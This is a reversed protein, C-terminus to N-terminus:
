SAISDFNVEVADPVVVTLPTGEAKKTITFEDAKAITVKYAGPLLEIEFYGDVRTTAAKPGTGILNHSSILLRDLHGAPTFTVVAGQIASGTISKIEGYVNVLTTEFDVVGGFDYVITLNDIDPTLLHEDDSILMTLIKIKSRTSIITTIHAQLDALTNLQLASGNSTTWASGNWYKLTGNVMVGYKINTDDPKTEDVDISLISEAQIYNNILITGTASYADSTITATLTSVSQQSNSATFHIKFQGYIEGAVPLESCHDNFTVIDNAQAYTGNSTVWATGSWYLYNGSRAIQLTYRPTNGETVAISNVSVFTGPGPHEMEPLTVNSALYTTENITFAISDISSLTNSSQFVIKVIVSSGLQGEPFTAINAIWDAKSMATAYTNSSAAWAAGNWYYDNVIYKPANVETTTPVGFSAINYLYSRAPCQVVSEIYDAEPVSYDPAYNATHQVSTFIEIDNFYADAKMATNYLAGIRFLTVAGSRTGTQVLTSGKQTGNIFFRTAGATIDFNLEFEYETGSVPSWVGFSTEPIIPGGASNNIAFYLYGSVTAHYLYIVNNGTTGQSICFVARSASPTGTYNPTYRIRICGTQLTDANGVADYSVYKTGGTLELKGGSITPSGIGTGNLGGNGWSGNINDTYTAGFTANTPRQSKTRALGSAFEAKTNDYTFGADSTFEQLFNETIDNAKQRVLGGVFEAKTDDYDFGSDSDFDETVEKELQAEALIVKGDSIQTNTKTYEGSISFDFINQSM